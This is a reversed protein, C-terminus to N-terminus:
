GLEIGFYSQTVSFFCPKGQGLGELDAKIQGKTMIQNAVFVEQKASSDRQRIKLLWIIVGTNFLNDGCWVGFFPFAGSDNKLGRFNATWLFVGLVCKM